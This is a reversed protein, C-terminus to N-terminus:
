MKHTYKTFEDKKKLSDELILLKQRVSFQRVLYNPLIKGSTWQLYGLLTTRRRAVHGSLICHQALNSVKKKDCLCLM